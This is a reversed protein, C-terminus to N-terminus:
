STGRLVTVFEAVVEVSGADRETLIIPRYDLNSRARTVKTHKWGGEEARGKKSSYRKVTFAGGTDPDAPGHYQVLVIKGQRTGVPKARFVLYDGGHITTRLM